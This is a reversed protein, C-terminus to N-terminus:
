SNCASETTRQLVCQSSRVARRVCQWTRHSLSKREREQMRWSRLSGALPRTSLPHQQNRCFAMHLVLYGASLFCECRVHTRWSTDRLRSGQQPTLRRVSHQAFCEVHLNQRSDSWRPEPSLGSRPCKEPPRHNPRRSDRPAFDGAELAVPLFM